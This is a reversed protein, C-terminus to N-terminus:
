PVSSFCREHDHDTNMSMRQLFKWTEFIRSADFHPALDIQRVCPHNKRSSQTLMRTEGHHNLWYRVEKGTTGVSTPRVSNPSVSSPSSPLM